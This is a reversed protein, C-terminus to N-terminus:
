THLALDALRLAQMRKSSCDIAIAVVSIEIRWVKRGRFGPDRIPSTNEAV